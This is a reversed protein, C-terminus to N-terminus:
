CQTALWGMGPELGALHEQPHLRLRLPKRDHDGIVREAHWTAFTGLTRMETIIAKTAADTGNRM